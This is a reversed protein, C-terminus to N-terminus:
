GGILRRIFSSSRVPSVLLNDIRDIVQSFSSPRAAPEKALMQQILQALDAPCDVHAQVHPIPQYCHMTITEISTSGQFPPQGTLCHFFVCGMAYLDSQWTCQDPDKAQEPAMYAPTGVVSGIEDGHNNGRRTYSALGFDAIKVLGGEDVLLNAPKIDRHVIGAQRAAELGQFVGRMLQCTEKWGIRKREILVQSLPQGQVLEMVVYATDALVAADLIRVVHPHTISAAHKAERCLNDATARGEPTLLKLAVAQHLILHSARWVSAFGGTGLCRELRYRGDILM